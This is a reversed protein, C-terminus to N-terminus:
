LVPCLCVDYSFHSEVALLAGRLTSQSNLFPYSQMQSHFYHFPNPFFLTFNIMFILIPFSFFLLDSNENWIFLSFFFCFTYCFSLRYSLKIPICCAPFPFYLYSLLYTKSAPLLPSRSKPVPSKSKIQHQWKFYSAGPSVQRDGPLDQSCVLSGVSIDGSSNIVM